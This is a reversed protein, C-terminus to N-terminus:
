QVNRSEEPMSDAITGLSRYTKTDITENLFRVAGDAFCFHAGGPHWSGYVRQQGGHNAGEYVGEHDIIDQETYEGNQPNNIPDVTASINFLSPIGRTGRITAAWSWWAGDPTFTRPTGVYKSEGVLLTNNLGDSIDAVTTSSNHYFIGNDFFLRFPVLQPIEQELADAATGGGQCVAYSSHTAESSSNPDEPCQFKTLPLYQQTLNPEPTASRLDFRASFIGEVDFRNYRRAEDLWPLILVSWPVRGDTLEDGEPITGRPKSTRYVAGPPFVQHTNHYSALALGVQRLRYRCLSTRAARRSELVAPLLLSVLLALVGMVLLVEVKGLGHRSARSVRMM